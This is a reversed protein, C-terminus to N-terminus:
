QVGGGAIARILEMELPWEGHVTNGDVRFQGSVLLTALDAPGPTQKERALLKQLLGTAEQLDRKIKESDSGNQCVAALKLAMRNSGGGSGSAPAVSFFTESAPALATAFIRSGTPVASPDRWYSGPVRIWITSSKVPWANVDGLNREQQPIGIGYAGGPPSSSIALASSHMPYFSLSNESFENGGRVECFGNKCTGGSSMAYSRIKGWDFRGVAVAHRAKGQLAIALRDLDSRYDFGSQQIFKRYEADEVAKSGAIIDLLGYDRLTKLDVFVLISDQVPLSAAM